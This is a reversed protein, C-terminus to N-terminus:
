NWTGAIGQMLRFTCRIGKGTVPLRPMNRTPDIINPTAPFTHLCM